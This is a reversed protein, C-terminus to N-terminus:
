LVKDGHLITYMVPHANLVWAMRLADWCRVRDIILQGSEASLLSAGGSGDVNGDDSGGATDSNGGGSDRTGGNTGSVGGGYDGGGGGGSVTGDGDSVGGGSPPLGLYEQLLKHEPGLPTIDPWFVAGHGLLDATLHTVPRLVHKVRCERILRWKVGFMIYRHGYNCHWYITSCLKLISNIIM